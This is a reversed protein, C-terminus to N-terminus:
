RSQAPRANGKMLAQVLGLFKKSGGSMEFTLRGIESAAELQVGVPLTVYDDFGEPDEAGLAILHAIMGPAQELVGMAAEASRGAIDESSLEELNGGAYRLFLEEMISKNLSILQSIDNLSLGRVEFGEDDTVKILAKKLTFKAM